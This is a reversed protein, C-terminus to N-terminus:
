RRARLRRLALAFGAGAALMLSSPEPTNVAATWQDTAPHYDVSLLPPGPIGLVVESGFQDYLIMVLSVPDASDPTGTLTLEFSLLSGFTLEREHEAFPLSALYNLTLTTDLSGSTSEDFLVSGLGAQPEFGSIEATASGPNGFGGLSFLVSGTTGALTSTNFDFNLTAGWATALASALFLPILKKM